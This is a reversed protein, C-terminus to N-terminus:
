SNKLMWDTTGDMFRPPDVFSNLGNNRWMGASALHNSFRNSLGHRPPNLDTTAQKTGYLSNSKKYFVKAYDGGKTPANIDVPPIGSRRRDADEPKVSNEAVERKEGGFSM